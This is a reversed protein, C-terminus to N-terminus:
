AGGELVADIEFTPAAHISGDDNLPQRMLLYFLEKIKFMEGVADTFKEPNGNCAFSLMRLFNAYARNFNTAQERLDSGDAYDTMRANMKAPFVADWDVDVEPGTPKYPEDGEQYYRGAFLQHFRFYHAIEGDEDFIHATIGEGQEAILDLARLASSMDTIATLEGGGSYYYESTIQNAPDGSFLEDGIQAHLVRLGDEIAKYFQGISFFHLEPDEDKYPHCAVLVPHPASKRRITASGDDLDAPREIKMFAEIAKQSFPQCDVVFDDEGDPLMTPYQAVFGKQSMDVKGGVANMLNCVLTLHLMEEVAIVRLIHMAEANTGPKISYLATLYLPITAHELQMAAYIYRHLDDINKIKHLSM